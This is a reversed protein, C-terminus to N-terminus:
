VVMVKVGTQNKKPVEVVNQVHSGVLHHNIVRPHLEYVLRRQALQFYVTDGRGVLPPVPALDAVTFESAAFFRKNADGETLKNKQKTGNFIFTSGKFSKKQTM